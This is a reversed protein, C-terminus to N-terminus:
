PAPPLETGQDIVSLWRGHKYTYTVSVIERLTFNDSPVAYTADYVITATKCGDVARTLETWSWVANRNNFHNRLTNAINDRGQVMQGTTFITIADDDHGAVWTDRDFDRFSEMDTRQAQEFQRADIAQVHERRLLSRSQRRPHSEAGHHAPRRWDASLGKPVSTARPLTLV